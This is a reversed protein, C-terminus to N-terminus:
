RGLPGLNWICGSDSGSAVSQRYVFWGSHQGDQTWARALGERVMIEDISDGSATYLYAVQRGRSDTDRDVVAEVRVHHGALEAMREEAAAACTESQMDVYVGYMRLAGAPTTLLEGNQVAVV